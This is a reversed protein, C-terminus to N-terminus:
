AKATRKVIRRARTRVQLAEVQIISEVQEQLEKAKKRPRAKENTAKRKSTPSSEIPEDFLVSDLLITAETPEIAKAKGKRKRSKVKPEAFVDLDIISFDEKWAKVFAVERAKQEREEIVEIGIVRGASCDMRKKRSGKRKQEKAVELLRDNM